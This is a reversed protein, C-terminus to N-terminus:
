FTFVGFGMASNAQELELRDVMTVAAVAAMFGDTKRTKPEIKGFTINGRTDLLQKTNNIYWRMLADDGFAVQQRNLQAILRPAIQMINRGKVQLINGDKGSVFGVGELAKKMIGFRYDDIAVGIVRKEAMQESLWKAPLEPPIEVDEVWTILGREVADQIPFKIRSLDKCQSCVWTHQQWVWEDGALGFLVVAVFDTTRAFDMGAVWVDPERKATRSCAVINEWATVETEMSGQPINMRKTMFAANGINDMRYDAYERRLEDMLNPFYRLSPNAKYWNREENVEEKKDLKCIFPLLGNDPIAGQLIQKSRALMHDLPGDRVDGDTTIITSRPFEKKGLGTKAVRVVDYNEYAHFEDFDVKGPRGGDKTKANSTRFRLQSGTQKSTIVELNWKFFKQLKRENREMVNYVDTFSTKAQDESNAFIDIHYDKVGNVPTLLCFDEFSLYGNKGGGRGMYLFAEPFRLLGDERYVCNHLTFMFIEWEFLKYPFYKQYGLYKSLQERNISLKETEFVNKVFNGLMKQEKCVPYEEDHEIM